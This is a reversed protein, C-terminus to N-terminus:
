RNGTRGSPRSQADPQLEYRATLRPTSPSMVLIASDFISYVVTGASFISM